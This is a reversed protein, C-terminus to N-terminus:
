RDQPARDGENVFARLNATQQQLEDLRSNLVDRISMMGVLRGGDVVPLHRIRRSLMTSAVHAIDDTPSCAFVTRTMLTSVPLAHLEDKHKALAYAIDRESIVGEVTQGDNSVVAAGIRKEHLLQSLVAITASPKITVLAAGKLALADAVKM